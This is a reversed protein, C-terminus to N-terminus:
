SKYKYSNKGHENTIKGLRHMSVLSMKKLYFITEFLSRCKNLKYQLLFITQLNKARWVHFIVLDKLYM